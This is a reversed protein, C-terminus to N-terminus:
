PTLFATYYESRMSLLDCLKEYGYLESLTEEGSFLNTGLGLREGEISCGMAALVTPFLDVTTFQRERIREPVSSANLFCNYIHRQYGEPANRAFFGNNMSCHDGVIVVTTDEYFPQDQLWAVFDAIQRDACSVVNAYDEQFQDACKECLYGSPSHTDVTLMTFAFPGEEAAMQTLKEKAYEYLMHDEMGWFQNDYGPEVSQEEWATYLDYVHDVGHSLFYSKRGGFDADSGVMLAQRYGEQRLVDSLTFLGPLVVAKDEGGSTKLPVGSTQAVLAGMTWTAGPIDRFGGVQTHNSFNINEQALTHLQPILGEDMGGGQQQSLYSAEMSELLIYVLNRRNEPFTIATNRPDRYHEEYISSTQLNLALYEALGVNWAAHGVMCLSAASFICTVLRRSLVYKKNLYFFGTCVSLTAMVAPLAGGALYGLLHEKNVGNLNGTLTFMVSDFGIRGYTRAYWWASFFCLFGVFLIIIVAAPWLRPTSKQKAKTAPVGM